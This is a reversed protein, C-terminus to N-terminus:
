SNILHIDLYIFFSSGFYFSQTLVGFGSLSYFRVINYEVAQYLLRVIM